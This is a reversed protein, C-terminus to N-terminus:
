EGEDESTSYWDEQPKSTWKRPVQIVEKVNGPRAAGAAFRKLARRRWWVQAAWMGDRKCLQAYLDDARERWEIELKEERMLQYLADHVLSAIMSCENDIAWSSGDWAYGPAIYLVGGSMRLMGSSINAGLRMGTQISFPEALQYTYGDRYIM